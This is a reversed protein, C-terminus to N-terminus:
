WRVVTKNKKWSKYDSAVRTDRKEKRQLSLLFLTVLSEQLVFCHPFSFMMRYRQHLFVLLYFLPLLMLTLISIALYFVGSKKQVFQCFEYTLPSSINKKKNTEVLFCIFCITFSAFSFM